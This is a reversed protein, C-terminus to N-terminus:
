KAQSMMVNLITAMPLLLQLLLCNAALLCLIRIHSSSESFRARGEFESPATAGGPRELLAPHRVQADRLRTHHNAISVVIDDHPM